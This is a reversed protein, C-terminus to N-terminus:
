LHVAREPDAGHNARAFAIATVSAAGADRLVRACENATVGTTVVDDLVAVRLGRLSAGEYRFAGVVNRSRTRISLGYQARTKRIRILRGPAQGVDMARLMLEVQNFGRERMRSRHLPVPFVHDFQSAELIPAVHRAMVPALSRTNRYKLSRVLARAPGEYDFAARAGELADWGFCLPCNDKGDWQATCFSCRPVAAASCMTEECRECLSANFAGCVACREPYLFDLGAQAVRRILQAAGGEGVAIM